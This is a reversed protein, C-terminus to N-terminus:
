QMTGVSNRVYGIVRINDEVWEYPVNIAKLRSEIEASHDVREPDLLLGRTIETIHDIELWEIAFTRFPGMHTDFYTSGTYPIWVNGWESVGPVHVWLFRYFLPLDSLVEIMERWKTANMRSASFDHAIVARINKEASIVSQGPKM